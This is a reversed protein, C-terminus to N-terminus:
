IKHGKPCILTATTKPNQNHIQNCKICYFRKRGEIIDFSNKAGCSSCYIFKKM